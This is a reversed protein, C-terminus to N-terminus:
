NGTYVPPSAITIVSAVRATVSQTLNAGPSPVQPSAGGNQPIFGSQGYTSDAKIIQGRSMMAMLSDTGAALNCNTPQVQLPIQGNGIQTDTLQQVPLEPGPPYVGAPTYQSEQPNGNMIQAGNPVPAGGPQGSNPNETGINANPYLNTM